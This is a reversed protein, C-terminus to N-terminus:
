YLKRSLLSLLHLPYQLAYCFGSLTGYQRRFLFVMSRYSRLNWHLRSIVSGGKSSGCGLHVLKLNPAFLAKLGLKHARICLADDEAYMFYEEPWGNVLGFAEATIMMCAGSIVEAPQPGGQPCTCRTGSPFRCGLFRLNRLLGLRPTPFPRSSSDQYEGDPYVLQPGALDASYNRLETALATFFGPRPLTDSNLFCLIRGKASRAGLNNAKAFGVNECNRLLKVAPFEAACMECSGDTSGNDVVIVEADPECIGALCNRLHGLTNWNVIIISLGSNM